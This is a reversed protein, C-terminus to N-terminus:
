SLRSARDYLARALELTDFLIAASEGAPLVRRERAESLRPLVDALERQALGSAVAELAEKPPLPEEGELELISVASTRLPGTADAVVIACQEARLSREVYAERLRMTLNLLVQRVRRKLAERPIRLRSVVDDGYLVVHRRGIDAFKQAFAEAADGLESDLVFMAAVNAAAQASRYPERFSDASSDFQTLVFLLNVDSTARLRGEAGSGYLIVSRLKEDFADRASSVLSDVVRRVDEPLQM